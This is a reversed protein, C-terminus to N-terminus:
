VVSEDAAPAFLLGEVLSTVFFPEAFLPAEFLPEAVLGDVEECVVAFAANVPVSEEDAPEAVSEDAAGAPRTWINAVVDLAAFFVVCCFDAVCSEVESESVPVGCPSALTSELPVWDEIPVVDCVFIGDDGDVGDDCPADFVPPFVAAGATVFAVADVDWVGVATTGVVPPTLGVFVLAATGGEFAGAVCATTVDACGTRVV